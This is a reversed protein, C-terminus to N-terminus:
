RTNAPAAVSRLTISRTTAGSEGLSAGLVRAPNTTRDVVFELQYAKGKSVLRYCLDNADYGRCESPGLLTTLKDETQIESRHSKMLSTVMKGRAELGDKVWRSSSFPESGFNRSFDGGFHFDEAGCGVAILTISILRLHM